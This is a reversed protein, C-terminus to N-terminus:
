PADSVRCEKPLTAKGLTQRELSELAETRDKAAAALSNCTSAARLLEANEPSPARTAAETLAKCCVLYDIRIQGSAGGGRFDGDKRERAASRWGLKIPGLDGRNDASNGRFRSVV